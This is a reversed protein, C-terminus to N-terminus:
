RDTRSELERRLEMRAEDREARYRDRDARVRKVEARCRVLGEELEDVLDKMSAMVDRAQTVIMGADERRFRLAGFIIAALGGSGILWPLLASFDM